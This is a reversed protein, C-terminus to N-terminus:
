PFPTGNCFIEIATKAKTKSSQSITVKKGAFALTDYVRAYPYSRTRKASVWWSVALVKGDEMELLFSADTSLAQALSSLPFKRLNRGLKPVYKIGTIEATINM